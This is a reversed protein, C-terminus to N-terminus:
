KEVAPCGFFIWWARQLRTSALLRLIGAAEAPTISGGAQARGVDFESVGPLMRWATEWDGVHLFEAACIVANRKMANM